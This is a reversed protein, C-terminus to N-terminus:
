RGTAYDLLDACSPDLSCRSGDPAAYSYVIAEPNVSLTIGPSNADGSMLWAGVENMTEGGFSAVVYWANAHSTSRNRWARSREVNGGELLLAQITDLQAVTATAYPAVSPAARTDANPVTVPVEARAIPGTPEIQNGAPIVFYIAVALIAIAPYLVYRSM